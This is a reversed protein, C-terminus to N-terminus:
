CGGFARTPTLRACVHSAAPNLPAHRVPSARLADTLRSCGWHMCPKTMEPPLDYIHIRPTPAHSVPPLLQPPPSVGQVDIDQAAVAALLLVCVAAAGGGGGGGGSRPSPPARAGRAAM